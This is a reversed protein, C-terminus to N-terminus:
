NVVRFLVPRSPSADNEFPAFQLNLLYSGDKIEDPVYILETITADMRPSEHMNWFAHHALLKGGDEERDVSPMDILLHKIGQEFLYRAADQAMYPPNTNSYNKNLKGPDNPLTRIVIAEPKKGALVSEIEKRTIVHDEKIPEPRVTVLEALFFFKTLAKNVSQKDKTIHGLCETHTGNGHPNFTINYFNVPAGQDVSGVWDGSTVPELRTPPVYWATVQQDLGNFPISIDIPKSLDVSFNQSNHEITAIM